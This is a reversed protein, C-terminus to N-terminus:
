NLAGGGRRRQAVPGGFEAASSPNAGAIPHELALTDSRHYGRSSDPIRINGLGVYPRGRM